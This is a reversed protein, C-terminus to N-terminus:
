APAEALVDVLLKLLTNTENKHPLGARMRAVIDIAHSELEAARQRRRTDPGIDAPLPPSTAASAANM